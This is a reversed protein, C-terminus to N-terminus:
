STVFALDPVWLSEVSCSQWLALCKYRWLRCFSFSFPVGERHVLISVFNWELTLNQRKRERSGGELLECSLRLEHEASLSFQRIMPNLGVYQCFWHTFLVNGHNVLAPKLLAFNERFCAFTCNQHNHEELYVVSLWIPWIILMLYLLWVPFFSFCKFFFFLPFTCWFWPSCLVLSRRRPSQQIGTKPLTFPM